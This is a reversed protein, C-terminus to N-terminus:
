HSSNLRTSKRDKRAARASAPKVVIQLSAVGQGEGAREAAEEDPARGFLRQNEDRATGAQRTRFAHDEVQEVTTVRFVDREGGAGATRVIKMEGGQEPSERLLMVGEAVDGCDGM